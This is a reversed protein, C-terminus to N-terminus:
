DQFRASGQQEVEQQHKRQLQSRLTAPVFIVSEDGARKYWNSIKERSQGKRAREKEVGQTQAITM